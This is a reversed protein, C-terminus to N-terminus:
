KDKWNNYESESIEKGSKYYKTPQDKIEIKTLVSSNDSPRGIPYGNEWIEGKIILLIKEDEFIKEYALKLFECNADEKEWPLNYFLRYEDNSTNFIFISFGYNTYYPANTVEIVRNKLNNQYIHRVFSEIHEEKILSYDFKKILINFFDKSKVEFVKTDPVNTIM